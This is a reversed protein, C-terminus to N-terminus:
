FTARAHTREEAGRTVATPMLLYLSDYPDGAKATLAIPVREQPGGAARDPIGFVVEEACRLPPLCSLLCHARLCFRTDAGPWEVSFQEVAEYAGPTRARLELTHGQIDFLIM